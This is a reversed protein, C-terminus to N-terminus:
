QFASFISLISMSATIFCNTVFIYVWVSPESVTLIPTCVIPPSPADIDRDSFLIINKEGTGVYLNETEKGYFLLESCKMRLKKKIKTM